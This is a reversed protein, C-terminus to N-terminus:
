PQVAIFQPNGEAFLVANSDTNGRARMVRLQAEQMKLQAEQEKEIAARQESTLYSSIADLMRQNRKRTSEIHRELNGGDVAEDAATRTGPPATGRNVAAAYEDAEVRQVEALAKLMPKSLDANLPVGRAALTTRMHEIQYRMGMTSKYEKWAQLKDAGFRAAIEAEGNRQLESTLRQVKRQQEQVAAPDRNDLEEVDWLPEMQESARLQQDALLGFFEEAQRADLGLEQIVGPYVRAFNSRAQMRMAERYEPDQMLQRQRERYERMMRLRADRSPVPPASPSMSPDTASVRAVAKKAVADPPGSDIEGPQGTSQAAPPNLATAARQQQLAAVQAKLEAISAERERVQKVLHLSVLGLGVAASLSILVVKSM